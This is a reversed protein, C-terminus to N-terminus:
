NGRSCSIFVAVNPFFALIYCNYIDDNKTYNGVTVVFIQLTM